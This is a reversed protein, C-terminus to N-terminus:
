ELALAVVRYYGSQPSVEGGDSRLSYTVASTAAQARFTATTVNIIQGARKDGDLGEREGVEMMDSGGSTTSFYLRTIMKTTGLNHTLTVGQGTSIPFWGSDYTKLVAGPLKANSNLAILKNAEPTQSAQINNIKDANQAQNAADARFAYAASAIRQRPSMVETGVKIELFYAKDFALNLPTVGGLLVSFIGKSVTVQQTETWLPVGATEVDYIMFTVSYTGDTVPKNQQDTLKGQYNLLRPIEAYSVTYLGCVVTLLCFMSTIILFKSLKEM